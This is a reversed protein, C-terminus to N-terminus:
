IGLLQIALGSAAIALGAFTNAHKSLAKLSAFRLGATGIAVMTLMTLITVAAFVGTVAAVVLWSHDWAPVMVLPILAECPGFVFLVFLTWGTLQIGATKGEAHAHAHEDHHDHHHVHAIGDQHAHMHSHSKGRAARVASWAAYVLGFAILGWAAISGRMGEVLELSDLAVGMGIGIFGLLVSGVVHGVGCLATIGMVKRFSWGRAKGIVVFPLYHDVGIVTHLLAISAATTLLLWIAPDTM